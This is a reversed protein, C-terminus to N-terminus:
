KKQALKGSVSERTQKDLVDCSERLDAVITQIEKVIDEYAGKIPNTEVKTRLCFELLRSVKGALQSEASEIRKLLPVLIDRSEVPLRRVRLVQALKAQVGAAKALHKARYKKKESEQAMERQTNELDDMLDTLLDFVFPLLPQSANPSQRSEPAPPVDGECGEQQWREGGIRHGFYLSVVALGVGMLIAGSSIGGSEFKMGLVDLKHTTGEGGINAVTGWIGFSVLVVSLLVNAFVIIGFNKSAM